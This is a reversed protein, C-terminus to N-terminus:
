HGGKSLEKKIHHILEIEINAKRVGSSLSVQIFDSICAKIMKEYQSLPIITTM